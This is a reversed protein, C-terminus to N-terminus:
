ATTTGAPSGCEPCTGSVNGTLHYGCALCRGQRRRLEREGSRYSRCQMVYLSVVAATGVLALWTVVLPRTDAHGPNGSRVWALWGVILGLISVVLSRLPWNRRPLHRRKRAADFRVAPALVTGVFLLWYPLRVCGGGWRCMELNGQDDNGIRYQPNTGVQVSGFDGVCMAVVAVCLVLSLATVLNLLRRTM